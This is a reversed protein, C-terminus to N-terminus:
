PQREAQTNMETMRQVLADAMGAWMPSEAEMEQARKWAYAKWSQDKALQCLHDLQKDFEAQKSFVATHAM